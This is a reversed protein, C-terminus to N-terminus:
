ICSIISAPNSAAEIINYGGCTLCKSKAFPLQLSDLLTHQTSQLYPANTDISHMFRQFDTLRVTTDKSSIGCVQAYHDSLTTRCVALMQWFQTVLLQELM